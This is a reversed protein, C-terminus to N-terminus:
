RKRKPGAGVGPWYKEPDLLKLRDNLMNLATMVLVSYETKFLGATLAQTGLTIAM